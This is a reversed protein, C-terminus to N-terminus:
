FEIEEEDEPFKVMFGNSFKEMSFFLSIVSKFDLNGFNLSFLSKFVM